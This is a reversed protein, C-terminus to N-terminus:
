IYSKIDRLISNTEINIQQKTESRKDNYQYVKRAMIIFDDDFELNRDKKRIQEEIDWLECNISKIKKKLIDSIPNSKILPSLIDYEKQVWERKEVDTIKELKIELISCKDYLEGISIAVLISM